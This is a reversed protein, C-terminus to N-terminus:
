MIPLVKIQPKKHAVQECQLSIIEKAKPVTMWPETKELFSKKVWDSDPIASRRLGVLKREFLFLQFKVQDELFMSAGMSVISECGLKFVIKPGNMMMM